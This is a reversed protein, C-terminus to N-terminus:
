YDTNVFDGYADGDWDFLHVGDDFESEPDDFIFSNGKDRKEGTVNNRDYSYSNSTDFVIILEDSYQGQEEELKKIRRPVDVNFLSLRYAKDGVEIVDYSYPHVYTIKKIMVEKSVNNIGDVVDYLKGVELDTVSRVALTTSYFPKSYIQLQGNGYEEADDNNTIEKKTQYVEIAGYKTKSTADTKKVKIPINYTYEIITYYSTTPSFTSSWTISMLEKNISYDYTSISGSVGGIKETVPTANIDSLVKIQIPKKDLTVSTTTWDSVSGDLLIPGESTKIEQPTGEVTIVNFLQSSDIKWKPVKVVNSGITLTTLSKSNGKPSFVIEDNQSDYYFNWNIVYSLERLGDLLTKHRLIFTQLINSTGSSTISTSLSTNETILTDFMESIVGAETDVDKDFSKTVNIDILASLKDQGSVLVVGGEFKINKVYGNLLNTETASSVGRQILITTNILEEDTYDLVDSVTKRLGVSCTKKNDDYNSIVTFSHVYASVDISNITVKMLKPLNTAAL